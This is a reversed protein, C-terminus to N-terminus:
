LPFSELLPASPLETLTPSVETWITKGTSTYRTGWRRTLQAVLFLGRGGEDESAARRLHPSTHGGDSVEVILGRERILRLRVPAGGYKVANTVLESVVLEVVFAASEDVDWEALRDRVLSRARAVEGPEVPLDWTAVLDEALAHVRVLLLAADDQPPRVLLARLVADCAQELPAGGPRTLRACLTRIGVDIDRERNEVVGDTFLALMAGEPLELDISEFPLGGVGLPPGAPLDVLDARGDATVLVPPIHGARAMVCHRTVPDYIAYLCTVGLAQDEHTDDAPQAVGVRAVLDDLRALLEDPALDLAALAAVTTRLRGMTAAARMGHGAVDGVVLGVRAGSLPIVDYWDGGVGAPGEAPLYRHAVEIGAPRPLTHPLLDHQLMLATAHERMYMRANDVCVATRSVLEVALATEEGDFPSRSRSRQFGAVGLVAGRAELRVVLEGSVPDVFPEGEALCRLRATDSATPLPDGAAATSPREALRCLAPPLGPGESWSQPEEGRLVPELLDVTATDAFEPVVLATLEAATRRIDLTTGISGGARSLLAMRQRAVHSDTTDLSVECVGITRGHEDQLRFYSCTWVHDRRPDVRAPSRYRIGTVPEGTRVVHEIIGEIDTPRGGEHLKGGEPLIDKVFRGVSEELPTDLEKEVATNIWSVRGDPDYVVLQVPSERYLGALMARGITRHRLPATDTATLLWAAGAAAHSLPALSLSVSVTRGDRHRVTRVGLDQSPRGATAFPGTGTGTDTLIEDASRGLVESPRHGFLEEAERSWGIVRLADDLVGTASESSLSQPASAAEHTNM